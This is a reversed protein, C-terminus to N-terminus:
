LVLYTNRFILVNCLETDHLLFWLFQPPFQTPAWYEIIYDSVYKNRKFYFRIFIVCKKVALPKLFVYFLYPMFLYM